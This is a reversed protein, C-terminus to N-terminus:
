AAARDALNNLHAMVEAMPLVDAYRRDVDILNQKHPVEDADGVCEEPVIVRFGYSFADIVTARVCGSTTCGTIITTDAQQKTLFTVLPTEFFMSPASKCFTFDYDADHIRSDLETCPHVYYFNERVEAIKWRPMDDPSCSATYCKAVPLGKRRAVALLKATHETARHVMELGGLEYQPDTFAVQLDVVLVALRSGFGVQESGYGVEQYRDGM